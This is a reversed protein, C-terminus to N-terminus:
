DLLFKETSIHHTETKETFLPAKVTKLSQHQEHMAETNLVYHGLEHVAEAVRVFSQKLNALWRGGMVELAPIKAWLQQLFFSAKQSKLEFEHSQIQLKQAIIEQQEPNQQVLVHTLYYQHQVKLLSVEDGAKPLLLCSACRRAKVIGIPDMKLEFTNSDISRLVKALHYHEILTSQPFDLIQAM